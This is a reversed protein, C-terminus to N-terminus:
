AREHYNLQIECSRYSEGRYDFDSFKSISGIVEYESLISYLKSVQSKKIVGLDAKLRENMVAIAPKGEWEYVQLKVPDGVKSKRLVRQRVNFGPAPFRCEFRAGTPEFTFTGVVPTTPAQAPTPISTSTQGPVPEKKPPPNKIRKYGYYLLLGGLALCFIMTPLAGSQTINFLARIATIIFFVGFILAIM